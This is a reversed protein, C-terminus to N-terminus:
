GKKKQTNKNRKTFVKKETGGRGGRQVGIVRLYGLADLGRWLGM